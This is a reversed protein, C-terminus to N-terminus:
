YFYTAKESSLTHILKEITMFKGKLKIGTDEANQNQSTSMTSDDANQNESVSFDVKQNESITYNVVNPSESVPSDVVM